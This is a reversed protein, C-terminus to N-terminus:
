AAVLETVRAPHHPPAQGPSWDALKIRIRRMTREVGRKDLGLEAGAEIQQLGTMLLAIMRREEVTLTNPLLLEDEVTAYVEDHDTALGNRSEFRDRSQFGSGPEFEPGGHAPALDEIYLSGKRPYRVWDKTMNKVCMFVFARETMPLKGKRSHTCDYAELAKWVKITILQVLDDLDGEAVGLYLIATKHILGRYVRLRRDM